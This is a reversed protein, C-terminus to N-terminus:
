KVELNSRHPESPMLFLAYKHCNFSVFTESDADAQDACTRLNM